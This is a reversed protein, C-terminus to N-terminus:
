KYYSTPVFPMKSVEAAQFKGRVQLTVPTGAAAYDADILGMAIPKKLMPSFTGSTVIGIRNKSSEDFIEAGERAPAKMGMFGVRKRKVKKLKGDPHLMNGAGPFGQEVRRRSKPGGITWTLVAEVPTVTDDLDHGYLCLGAELRLSDRAGLGAPKVASNELLARALAEASEPPVAIEYGDEGTYGCRTVRCSDIGAVTAPAGTMFAMTSVPASTLKALADAAGPGQLAVLQMDGLYEMEVEGDFTAMQKKFHAMDDHKTAGNVVMYVYDGANTIVTDDLIGGATNTVLSLRGEGEGLAAIDGVVISELFRVRDKGHWRIQGMHSVDFLSACGAARTHLHENLVGMGEREYLVPLEYGAFPVMKGGLELHLDRLSTALLDSSAAGAFRRVPTLHVAAFRASARLM